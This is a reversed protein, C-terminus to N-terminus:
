EPRGIAGRYVSALQHCMAEQSFLEHARRLAAEGMRLRKSTDSLLDAIAEALAEDNAPPVVRGTVGDATVYPVGTPLDCCVVPLGCAMAEVQSLGFAESSLHSPMVFIDSAQLHPVVEEDPLEGLFHIRDQLGLEATLRELKPGEPGEGIVLLHVQDLGRMASVLFQLGKYYRLKGVFILLPFGKYRRKIERAKAASEITRAFPALPMGLPVPRCLSRVSQLVPSSDVLRPSTPMITHCRRLFARLFPGYVAMAWKQRVVDSHYTAVVPGPPRSLLWSFDGTPNPIHFHWVDPRLRRLWLPFSPAMPASQFRGWEGVEIIRVGEHERERTQRTRSNVLVTFDFEERLGGIMWNICREIGGLIPPWFDKYVHVVHPRTV